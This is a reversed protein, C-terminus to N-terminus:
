ISLEAVGHLVFELLGVRLPPKNLSGFILSPSLTGFAPLGFSSLGRSALSFPNMVYLPNRLLTNAFIEASVKCDLLYRSPINLLQFAFETM